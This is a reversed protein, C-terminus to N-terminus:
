PTFPIIKILKLFDGDNKDFTAISYISPERTPNLKYIYVNASPKGDIIVYWGEILAYWENAPIKKDKEYCYLGIFNRLDNDYFIYKGVKGGYGSEKISNYEEIKTIKM